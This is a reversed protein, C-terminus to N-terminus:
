RRSPSTACGHVVPLSRDDIGFSGGMGVVCICAIACGHSTSTVDHQLREDDVVQLGTTREPELELGRRTHEVVEDLERLLAALRVHARRRRDLPSGLAARGARPMMAQLAEHEEGAVHAGLIWAVLHRTVVHERAHRALQHRVDVTVVLCASEDIRRARESWWAREPHEGTPGEERQEERSAKADGLGDREIEVVDLGLPQENPLGLEVLRAQDRQVLGCPAPQLSVEHTSAHDDRRRLTEEDAGATLPEGVVAGALHELVHAPRGPELLRRALRLRANVVDAVRERHPRKLRAGVTPVVNGLVRERARRVQPVGM